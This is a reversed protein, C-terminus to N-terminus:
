ACVPSQVGQQWIQFKRDCFVQIESTEHFLGQRNIDYNESTYSHTAVIAITEVADVGSVRHIQDM